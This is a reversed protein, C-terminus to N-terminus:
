KPIWPRPIMSYSRGLDQLSSTLAKSISDSLMADFNGRFLRRQLQRLRRSIKRLDPQVKEFAVRNDAVVKKLGIMAKGKELSKKVLEATNGLNKDHKTVYEASQTLYQHSLKLAQVKEFNKQATSNAEMVERQLGMLANLSEQAARLARQSRNKTANVDKELSDLRKILHEQEAAVTRLVMAQQAATLNSGRGSTNVAAGSEVRSAAHGKKGTNLRSKLGDSVLQSAPVLWTHVALGLLLQWSRARSM